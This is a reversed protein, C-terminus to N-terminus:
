LSEPIVDDAPMWGKPAPREIRPGGEKESEEILMRPLVKLWKKGTRPDTQERLIIVETGQHVKFRTNYEKGPGFRVDSEEATVTGRRVYEESYIKLATCTGVFIFLVLLVIFTKKVWSARVFIFLILVAACAWYFGLTVATAEDLNLSFYCFLLSRFFSPLSREYLKDQLRAAAQKLNARVEPNRPALRLALRYNRMAEGLHNLRYQTNALNYLVAWSVTGGSLINKYLREAEVFKEAAKGPEGAAELRQAEQYVENAWVFAALANGEGADAAPTSLLALVMLLLAARTM